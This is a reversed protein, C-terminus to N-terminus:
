RPRSMWLVLYYDWLPWLQIRVQHFWSLLPLQSEWAGDRGLSGSTGGWPESMEGATSHDNWEPSISQNKLNGGKQTWWSSNAVIAGFATIATYDFGAGEQMSCAWFLLDFGWFLGFVISSTFDPNMYKTLSNGTLLFIFPGKAWYVYDM